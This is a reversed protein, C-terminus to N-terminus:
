AADEPADLMLQATCRIDRSSAGVLVEFAGAEAVWGPLADDYYSLSRADLSMTVTQTEGPELAVKAYAKLEKDPRVLRSEVDRLYLQVVEQGARSGSNTVDVSVSIPEGLSYAAKDLRLNDYTFTTYSLGFGFPFLPAIKKLDYYRYGVFLGEGYLVRGNEGPYNLYAPNDELRV